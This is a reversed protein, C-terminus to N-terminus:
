VHRTIMGSIFGIAYGIHTIVYAVPAVVVMKIDKFRHAALFASILTMIGYLSFLLGTLYMFLGGYIFSLLLLFFVCLFAVSPVAYFPSFLYRYKRSAIARGAGYRLMYHFFSTPSHVKWDHEVIVNPSYILRYGAKRMRYNLDADECFRLDESYLGATELAERRYVANCSPISRVERQKEFRAFLPSGASAFFTSLVNLLARSLYTGKYSSIIPGSVGGVDEQRLLAAANRLWDKRAVYCDGDVFAIIERSSNRIGANRGQGPTSDKTQIVKIGNQKAIFMTRDRSGGDVLIVDYDPYDIKLVSEITSEITREENKVAIIVSVEPLRGESIPSSSVDSIGVLLSVVGPM